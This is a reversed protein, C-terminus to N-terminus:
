LRSWTQSKCILGALTCGSLRLTNGALKGKGSYTKGDEPNTITGQYQGEGSAVFQGIRKGAYEGDKVTICYGGGCDSIAATEGPQTKWRGVIEDAAFAASTSAALAAAMITARLM